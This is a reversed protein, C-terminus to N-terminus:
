IVTLLLIASATLTEDTNLAPISRGNWITEPKQIFVRIFQNTIWIIAAHTMYVGYSITGLFVLFYLNLVRNLYGNRELVITAILTASLAYIVVDYRNNGNFHLFLFISLFIILSTYKPVRVTAKSLSAATLCGVFFGCLCRILDHFGFTNQSILLIASVFAIAFFALSSRKSFLLLAAGCILYTYFEVSISWAPGNFTTANNTPGIAQVLFIQEAFALMNNEKFPETNPSEIGFRSAAIYKAMETFLFFFLVMIHLPYVRGLRLFQFRWLDRASNIKTIYSNYIVFGSLVYFLEVM